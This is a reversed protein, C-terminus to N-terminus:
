RLVDGTAVDVVKSHVGLRCRGSDIALDVGSLIERSIEEFGAPAKEGSVNASTSVIPTGAKRLLERVLAHDPIRMGVTDRGATVEDPIGKKRVIFTVPKGLNKRIFGEQQADLRVYRKATELDPFAVSLPNDGSRKKIEYVRNVADIDGISCGLGYVTETPYVIVCGEQLRKAVYSVLDGNPREASIRLLEM